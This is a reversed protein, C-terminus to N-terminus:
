SSFSRKIKQLSLISEDRLVALGTNNGIIEILNEVVPSVTAVYLSFINFNPTTTM